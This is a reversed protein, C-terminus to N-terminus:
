NERGPEQLFHARPAFSSTAGLEKLLARQPETLVTPLVIRVTALLDGSGGQPLPLGRKALRLARGAPTNEPVKLQVTGGLTPIDVTAGLAAEWPTLPLDMYLDHGSARFLRNPQLAITLYLDGARGGNLGHGGKGPLRLRQGDTAGKPVRAHITQPVRRLRGDADYEPLSLNLDILAGNYADELSISASVEYDQGPLPPLAGRRAGDARGAALGAFLDALDLNEFSSDNGSHRTGWGPPPHFEEGSSHAGLQDYAARKQPDKLTQYAEAVDKFRAETGPEKSVDPHHKQALRRYAKKLDAASVTREVGLTAYYDKYKM